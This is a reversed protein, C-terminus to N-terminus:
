EQPNALRARTTRLREQIVPEQPALRACADLDDRARKLDGKLEYAASRAYYVQYIEPLNGYNAIIQTYWDIAEDFRKLDACQAGLRFRGMVPNIAIMRRECEAVEDRHNLKLHINALQKWADLFRLDHTEDPHGLDLSKAVALLVGTENTEPAKADIENLRQLCKAAEDLKKRGILIRARNMWAGPFNRDCQLAITNESLASEFDGKEIYTECLNNHDSARDYRIEFCKKSFAISEDLERERRLILALNSFADAYRPNSQIGLRFYKEALKLNEPSTKRAYYVGLNNNAFDYDPKIKIADRFTEAALDLLAERAALPEATELNHRKLAFAVTNRLPSGATRDPTVVELGDHDYQIGLHNYAFWNHDTVDVAHEFLVYSNIWYSVQKFTVASLMTFVLVSATALAIRTQPWREAAAKLLWVIMLYLGIMPLYTYRDARAQTGVQVIGIVPMLTGLFWFWGVALYGKRWFWIVAGTVNVLLIAGIAAQVYASADWGSWGGKDTGNKLIYMHPYFVAMRAPWFVQGLYAALSLLANFLRPGLPLGEFSNLAVGKNQGIVTQWCDYGAMAFWPLKEILLRSASVLDLGGGPGSPWMAKRWRNLPWADLLLFVCPLTVAMSKALLALGFFLTILLYIGLTGAAEARSSRLLPRRRVYCAYALMSAMWFLGCLVDKREAAWAVSEVRLPHAAFLATVAVCPWLGGTMLRLALFLLVANACHIGMNVLHHGGAWSDVYRLNKPQWTGFLQWDLMHSMWTLPHWNGAHPEEWAWKVGAWSKGDPNLGQMVNANKWIYDNDDCVTFDHRYTQVYLLTILLVLGVCVGTTIWPRDM